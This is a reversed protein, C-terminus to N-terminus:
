LIAGLEGQPVKRGGRGRVKGGVEGEWAGMEEREMHKSGRGGGGGGGHQLYFGSGPVHWALM